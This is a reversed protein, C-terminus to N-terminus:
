RPEAAGSAERVSGEVVRPAGLAAILDARARAVRSRITGIPCSCVTAADAYSLDLMQTLVFAERREPELALVLERLLVRDEVGPVASTRELTLEWDPTPSTRPRRVVARIHDAAARRAISLLWTRASSRGEFNPLARLARLYTEQTLDDAEKAGVLGSVFRHVDRQTANIFRVTAETDGCAGAIALQTIDLDDGSGAGV